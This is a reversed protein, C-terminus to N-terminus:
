VSVKKEEEEVTSLEVDRPPVKVLVSSSLLGEDSKIRYDVETALASVSEKLSLIQTQLEVNYCRVALNYRYLNDIEQEARKTQEIIKETAEVCGM